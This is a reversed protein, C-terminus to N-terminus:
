AALRARLRGLYYSGVVPWGAHNDAFALKRAFTALNDGAFVALRRIRLPDGEVRGWGSRTVCAASYSARRVADVVRPAHDGYPYAFSPVEAGLIDQLESRSGGVEADLAADDLATLHPHSHTHAGIDMGARQMERLQARDLLTMSPLGPDGWAADSGVDRTVIFWSACMGREVLAEFAAMNDAYGDDFTIVVTRRSLMKENALQDLTATHWGQDRLLALQAEFRRLSM